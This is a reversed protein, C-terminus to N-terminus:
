GVAWGLSIGAGDAVSVADRSSMHEVWTCSRWPRRPASQPAVRGDHGETDGLVGVGVRQEVAIRQGQQDAHQQVLLERHLAREGARAQDRLPEADGLEVGALEGCVVGLREDLDEAARGGHVAVRARHGPPHLREGGRDGLLVVAVGRPDPAVDLVPALQEAPEGGQGPEARLLRLDEGGEQALLAADGRRAPPLGRASVALLAHM